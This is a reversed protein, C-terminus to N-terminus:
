RKALPIEKWSVEMGNETHLTTMQWVTGTTTDLVHGGLPQYRGIKSSQCGILPLAALFALLMAAKKKMPRDGLTM